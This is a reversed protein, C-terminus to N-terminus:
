SGELEPGVLQTRSGDRSAADLRRGSLAGSDRSGDSSCAELLRLVERVVDALAVPQPSDLGLMRELEVRPILLTGGLRVARLEGRNIANYVADRGVGLAAAAERVTLALRGTLTKSHDTAPVAQHQMQPTHLLSTAVPMAM